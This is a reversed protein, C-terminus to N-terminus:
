NELFLSSRSFQIFHIPAHLFSQWFSWFSFNNRYLKKERWFYPLDFHTFLCCNKSYFRKQYFKAHPGEWKLIVVVTAYPRSRYKIFIWVCPNEPMFIFIRWFRNKRLNNCKMGSNSHKMKITQYDPFIRSM